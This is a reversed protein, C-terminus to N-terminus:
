EVLKRIMMIVRPQCLLGIPPRLASHVWNSEVLKFFFLRLRLTNQLQDYYSRHLNSLKQKGNIIYIKNFGFLGLKGLAALPKVADTLLLGMNNM